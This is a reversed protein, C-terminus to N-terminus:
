WDNDSDDIGLLVCGAPWMGPASVGLGLAPRGRAQAELDGLDAAVYRRCKDDSM